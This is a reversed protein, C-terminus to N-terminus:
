LKAVEHELTEVDHQLAALRRRLVLLQREVGTRGALLGLKAENEELAQVGRRVIDHVAARSSEEAQAIESLSWDDRLYLELVRRQHDTLLPGYREFLEVQRRRSTLIDLRM